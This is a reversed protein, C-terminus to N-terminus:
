LGEIMASSLGPGNGQGSLACYGVDCILNLEFDWTIATVLSEWTQPAFEHNVQGSMIGRSDPSHIQNFVVREAPALEM